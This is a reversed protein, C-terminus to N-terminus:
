LEYTAGDTYATNQVECVCALELTRLSAVCRLAFCLLAVLRPQQSTSARTFARM